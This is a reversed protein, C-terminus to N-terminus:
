RRLVSDVGIEYWLIARPPVRNNDGILGYALHPLLIIRASDGPHLFQVAEHIGSITADESVRFSLTGQKESSYLMTSDLLRAVFSLIVEEKPQILATVGSNSPPVSRPYIEYFLGSGSETLNWGRNLGTQRVLNADERVLSQHVHLLKERTDYATDQSENIKARRNCSTVVLVGFAFLILYIWKM